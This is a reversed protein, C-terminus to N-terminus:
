RNQEQSLIVPMLGTKVERHPDITVGIFSPWLGYVQFMAKVEARKWLIRSGIESSNGNM